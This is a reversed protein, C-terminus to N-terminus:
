EHPPPSIVLFLSHLLGLYTLLYTFLFKAGIQKSSLDNQKKWIM